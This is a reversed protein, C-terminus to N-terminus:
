HVLHNEHGLLQGTVFASDPAQHGIGFTCWVTRESRESFRFGRGIAYNNKFTVVPPLYIEHSLGFKNFAGFIDQLLEKGFDVGPFPIIGLARPTVKFNSRNTATDSAPHASAKYCICDPKM